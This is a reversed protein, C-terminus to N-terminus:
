APGIDKPGETLKLPAMNVDAAIYTSM